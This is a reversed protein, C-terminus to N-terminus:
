ERKMSIRCSSSGNGDADEWYFYTGITLFVTNTYRVGQVDEFSLNIKIAPINHPEDGCSLYINKLLELYVEPIYFDYTEEANPLLYLVKSNLTSSVMRQWQGNRLFLSGDDMEDYTYNNEDSIGNLYDLLEIFSSADISYTINKAVGVGINKLPIQLYYPNFDGKAFPNSLCGHVSSFYKDHQGWIFHVSVSEFVIDPRYANNRQIQMERLTLLVIIVSIITALNTLMAITEKLSLSAIKRKIWEIKRELMLKLGNLNFHM